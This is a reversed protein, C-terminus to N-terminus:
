GKDCRNEFIPTKIVILQVVIPRDCILAKNSFYRFFKDYGLNIGVEVKVIKM